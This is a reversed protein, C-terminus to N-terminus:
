GLGALPAELFGAGGFRYRRAEVARGGRVSLVLHEAGPLAPEGDLLADDRDKESFTAPADVHSHWVALVEGGERALREFAALLADPDMLFSDRATRPFRVPDEAHAADAANPVALVELAEGTRVVFGCAERDPSAECLAAIRALLAAPYEREGRSRVRPHPDRPSPPLPAM